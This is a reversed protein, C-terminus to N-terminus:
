WPGWKRLKRQAPAPSQDALASPDPLAAIEEPTLPIYTEDDVPMNIGGNLGSDGGNNGFVGFIAKTPDAAIRSVVAIATDNVAEFIDTYGLETGDADLMGQALADLDTKNLEGSTIPYFDPSSVSEFLTYIVPWSPDRAARPRSPPPPPPPPPAAACFSVWTWLNAADLSVEANHQSSFTVGGNPADLGEANGPSQRLSNSQLRAALPQAAPRSCACQTPASALPLSVPSLGLPNQGIPTMSAQFGETQANPDVWNPDAIGPDVDLAGNSTDMEPSPSPSQAAALGLVACAAALAMLVRTVKM